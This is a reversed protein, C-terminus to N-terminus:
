VWELWLRDRSETMEAIVVSKGLFNSYVIEGINKGRFTLCDKRMIYATGEPYYVVMANYHRQLEVDVKSENFDGYFYPNFDTRLYKCYINKYKSM